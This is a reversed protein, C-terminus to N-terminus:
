HTQSYLDVWLVLRLETTNSWLSCKSVEYKGVDNQVKNYDVENALM